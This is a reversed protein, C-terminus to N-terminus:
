YRRMAPDVEHAWADLGGALSRVRAFGARRLLAAARESRVGKHCVTVLDASATLEGLRAPLEALPLLRAGPLHAVDFV